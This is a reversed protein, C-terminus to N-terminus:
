NKMDKGTREMASGVDHKADAAERKADRSANDVAAGIKAAGNDIARGAGDLGNDIENGADNVASGVDNGIASGANELSDSAKQSCAGLGAASLILLGVLFSPKM